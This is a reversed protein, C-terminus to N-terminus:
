LTYLAVLFGLPWRLGLSLSSFITEPYYHRFATKIFETEEKDHSTVNDNNAERM